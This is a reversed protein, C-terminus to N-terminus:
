RRRRYRICWGSLRLYRGPHRGLRRLVGEAPRQASDPPHHGAADPRGPPAGHPQIRSLELRGPRKNPLQGGTVFLRCPPRRHDGAAAGNDGRHDALSPSHSPQALHLRCRRLDGPRRLQELLRVAGAAIIVAAAILGPRRPLTVGVAGDPMTSADTVKNTRGAKSTRAAKSRRSPRRAAM